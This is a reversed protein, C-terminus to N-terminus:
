VRYNSRLLNKKLNLCVTLSKTYNLINNKSFLVILQSLYYKPAKFKQFFIEIQLILNYLVLIYANGICCNYHCYNDICCYM